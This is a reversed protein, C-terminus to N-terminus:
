VHARGIKLARAAVHRETFDRGVVFLGTITGNADRAFEAHWYVMRVQGNKTLLSREYFDQLKEAKIYTLFAQFRMAREAPPSFVNHYSRGLLEERTYGTFELFFDNVDVISGECDILVYSLTTRSLLDRVQEQARNLVLQDVATDKSQAPLSTERLTLLVRVVGNPFTLRRLLIQASLTPQNPRRAQWPHSAEQGTQATYRVAERLTAESHWQGNSTSPVTLAMLGNTQLDPRSVGLLHVIAKNCDVLTGQEDYLLQADYADEFLARYFDTPPAVAATSLPAASHPM